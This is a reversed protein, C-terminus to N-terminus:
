VGGGRSGPTAQRWAIDKALLKANEAEEATKIADTTKYRYKRWWIKRYQNLTGFFGRSGTVESIRALKTVTEVYDASVPQAGTYIDFWGNNLLAEFSQGGQNAGGGSTGLLNTCLGTSLRLAM